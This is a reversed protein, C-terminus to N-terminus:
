RNARIDTTHVAGISPTQLPSSFDISLSSTGSLYTPGAYKFTSSSASGFHLWCCGLVFASLLVSVEALGRLLLHYLLPGCCSRFCYDLRGIFAIELPFDCSFDLAVGETIALKVM